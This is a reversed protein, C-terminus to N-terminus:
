AGAAPLVARVRAGSSTDLFEITGGNTELFERAIALGLGTGKIRAGSAARGQYFPEFVREREAAAIGPGDDHVELVATADQRCARVRIQGAQPSYKIANSILNDLVTALQSRSGRVAVDSVDLNLRLEKALLSLRHKQTVEEIVDALRVPAETRQEHDAAMSAKGFELLDDILAQLRVSSERIITLIEPADHGSAPDGSGERLLEVGERISTLPTKLEHSVRRLFGMKEGELAVIRRRLWDLQEGVGALDRPGPVVVPSAFDGAGLGAIARKISALPRNILMTFVLALGIAAPIVTAALVLLLQQLHAASRSMNNAEREIVGRIDAAIVRAAEALGSFAQDLDTVDTVARQQRGVHDYLAEEALQLDAIKRSLSVGLRAEALHGVALRFSRRRDLYAQYLGPDRLVAHQGLSREMATLHEAIARSQQAAVEATLVAERSEAALHEVQLVAVIVAAILPSAVVLFGGAVLGLVSKARPFRV